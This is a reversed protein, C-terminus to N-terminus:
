MKKRGPNFSDSGTTSKATPDAFCLDKGGPKASSVHILDINVSTKLSLLGSTMSYEPLVPSILYWEFHQGWQQINRRM